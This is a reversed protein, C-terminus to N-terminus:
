SQGALRRRQELQWKMIYSRIIRGQAEGTEFSVVVDVYGTLVIRRVAKVIGEVAVEDPGLQMTVM